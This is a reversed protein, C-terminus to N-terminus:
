NESIIIGKVQLAKFQGLPGLKLVREVSSVSIVLAFLM